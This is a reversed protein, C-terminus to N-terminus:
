MVIEVVYLFMLFQLTVTIDLCITKSVAFKSSLLNDIGPKLYALVQGFGERFNLKFLNNCM